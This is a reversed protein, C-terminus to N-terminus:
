FLCLLFNQIRKGWSRKVSVPKAASIRFDKVWNNFKIFTCNHGCPINTHPPEDDDDDDECYKFFDNDDAATIAIIVLWVISLQCLAELTPVNAKINIICWWEDDGYGGDKDYDDYDDYDDHNDCDDYDAKVPIAYM